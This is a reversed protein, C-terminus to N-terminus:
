DVNPREGEGPMRFIVRDVCGAAHDPGPEISGSRILRTAAEGFASAPQAELVEVGGVAGWSALSFRVIAWGEIARKSFAEPYTLRALKLRARQEASCRNLEGVEPPPFPAPLDDGARSFGVICGRRPGDGFTTEAVARAVEADWAGDGSSALAEIGRTVGAEDIDFRVAAWDRGGPATRGRRRNPAAASQLRPTTECADGPRALARRIAPALRRNDGSVLAHAIQTPSADDLRVRRSRVVVECDSRARPPFRWSALAAQVDNEPGSSIVVLGDSTVSRSISIPRGAGDVAFTLVDPAPAGPPAAPPAGPPRPVESFVRPALTEQRLPEVPRGECSAEASREVLFVEGAEAPVQGTITLLPAVGDGPGASQAAADLDGMCGVAFLALCSALGVRPSMSRVAAETPACESPM